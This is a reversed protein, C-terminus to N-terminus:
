NNALNSDYDENFKINKINKELYRYFATSAEKKSVNDAWYYVTETVQSNQVHGVERKLNAPNYTGEKVEKGIRASIYTHRFSHLSLDNKIKHGHAKNYHEYTNRKIDQNKCIENLWKLPIQSIFPSANESEPNIFLYHQRLAIPKKEELLLHREIFYNRLLKGFWSNDILSRIKKLKLRHEMSFNIDSMKIGQKTCNMYYCITEDVIKFPDKLLETNQIIEGQFMKFFDIPRVFISECDLDLLEPLNYVDRLKIHREEAKKNERRSEEYALRKKVKVFFNLNRDLYIDKKDLEDREFKFLDEWHVVTHQSFPFDVGSINHISVRVNKGLLNLCESIRMGTLLLLIFMFYRLHNKRLVKSNQFFSRLESEYFIRERSMRPQLEKLRTIRTINPHGIWLYFDKKSKKNYFKERMVVDRTISKFHHSWKPSKGLWDLYDLSLQLNHHIYKYPHRWAEEDLEANFSESIHLPLVKKEEDALMKTNPSGYWENYIKKVTGLDEIGMIYPHVPLYELDNPDITIRNRLNKPIVSLYFIYDGLISKTIPEKGSMRQVRLFNYWHCIAHAYNKLNQKSHANDFLSKLYDFAPEVLYGEPSFVVSVAKPDSEYTKDLDHGNFVTYMGNIRRNEKERYDINKM